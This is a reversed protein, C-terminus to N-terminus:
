FRIELGGWAARPAGPSLFRPDEYEDGLVEDAEGLIGFTHYTADFINNAEFLATLANTIRHRARVNVIGFRDVPDLLNAEDGRFYQSSQARVDLGVDLRGTLRVAVGAKGSHEPVGPLRDGEAVAIEADVNLPHRPSALVLDTGFTARQFTYSAFASVRGAAYEVSTEVGRRRTRDVNEFHGEGRLRGSSVFIIDDDAASAFAAVTWNFSGRRGRLGGEWTTAVIQALPPDSVFANPLRCPDEPDACTLEVPTPVRSSQAYSGFLNLWPRAQYTAGASPNVRWFDHDGTLDDGLQDRLRVSTRNVRAAGTLAVRETPSWTNTIFASGTISRTHLDIFASDDFIGTRTTGREPTLHAFEAAFDFEATAWDLGGGAVFYNDRGLLPSTRTTQGTVGTSRGRTHSINNVANFPDDEDATDLADGNFTGVNSRRYYAVGELLMGASQRQGNVTVLVADNETRDPHTFVAHREEELLEIPAAGNGTLDNSAATVSVNAASAGGRWALDGFISRVTSPSFDRWGEEDTLTGAIYYALSDGRGGAQGEVRHRGFSGSTFLGHYGPQDFGNRTQISLAGGLANLGFLPNSGPMLSLSAIAAQPLLDWNITDGFAENVRVGDQYVAMGESAGLLPSSVYGRFLLDPQFTGAQAEVTHVSAARDTLMSPVGVSFADAAPDSTFVQVNAPVKSRLLGVGHIPTVAVVEVDEEFRPPEETQPAAAPSDQQALLVSASLHLLGIAVLFARM